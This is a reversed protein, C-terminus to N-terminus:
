SARNKCARLQAEIWVTARCKVGSSFIGTEETLFSQNDGLVGKWWGSRCDEPACVSSPAAGAGYLVGHFMMSGQQIPSMPSHSPSAPETRSCLGSLCCARSYIDRKYVVQLHKPIVAFSVCPLSRWVNRSKSCKNSDM